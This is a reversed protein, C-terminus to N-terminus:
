GKSQPEQCYKNILINQVLLGVAILGLPIYSKTEWLHGSLFIVAGTYLLALCHVTKFRKLVYTGKGNYRLYWKKYREGGFFWVLLAWAFFVAAGIIAITPISCM